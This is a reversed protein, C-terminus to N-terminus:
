LKNFIQRGECFEQLLVLDYEEKDYFCDVYKIIFPHQLYKLIRIEELQKSMEGDLPIRKEAFLEGTAIESVLWVKGGGGHGLVKERKYKAKDFPKQALDEM